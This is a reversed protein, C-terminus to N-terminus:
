SAPHGESLDPSTLRSLIERLTDWTTAGARERFEAEVDEIVRQGAALAALGDATPRLIRVRRDAPDRVSELFGLSELTTALEGLSQKTMGVRDALDTVRLGDVPTLSLLRIQSGRLSRAAPPAGDLPMTAVRRNVERRFSDMLYGLLALMHDPRGDAGPTM